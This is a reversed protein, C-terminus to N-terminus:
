ARCACLHLSLVQNSLRMTVILQSMIGASDMGQLRVLAPTNTPHPSTLCFSRRKPQDPGKRWGLNGATGQQAWGQLGVPKGACAAQWAHEGGACM